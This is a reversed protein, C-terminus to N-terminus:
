DSLPSLKVQWTEIFGEVSFDITQEVANPSDPPWIITLSNEGYLTGIRHPLNDVPASAPWCKPEDKMIANGLSTFTLEINTGYSVGTVSFQQTGSWTAECQNFDVDYDSFSGQGEAIFTGEYKFGGTPKLEGSLTVFGKNTYQYGTLDLFQDYNLEIQVIAGDSM